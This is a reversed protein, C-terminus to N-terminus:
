LVVEVSTVLVGACTATVCRFSAVAVHRDQSAGRHDRPKANVTWVTLLLPLAAPDLCRLRSRWSQKM